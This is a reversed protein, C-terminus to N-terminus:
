LTLQLLFVFVYRAFDNRVSSRFPLYCGLYISGGNM